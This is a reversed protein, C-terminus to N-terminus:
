KAPVAPSELAEGVAYLWRDPFADQLERKVFPLLGSSLLTLAKEVRERNSQAM